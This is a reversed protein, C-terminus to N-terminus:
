MFVSMNRCVAALLISLCALVLIRQRMTYRSLAIVIPVMVLPFMFNWVRATEAALLATIAVFIPLAISLMVIRLLPDRSGRRMIAAVGFGALLFSIWGTGLALDLLDNWITAPYPRDGPHQALLAQQNRWASMFTAIPEYGTILWISLCLGICTALAIMSLRLTRAIPARSVLLAYGILFPGFM